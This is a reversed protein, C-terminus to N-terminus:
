EAAPGVYMETVKGDAFTFVTGIYETAVVYLYEDSGEQDKHAAYTKDVEALASGIGIEKRTKLTCPATISISHVVAPGDESEASMTISIGKDPWQWRSLFYGTIGEEELAPKATPPGLVKEAEAASMGARLPGFSEDAPDDAIQPKANDHREQNDAVAPDSKKAATGAGAKDCSGGCGGLTLMIVLM